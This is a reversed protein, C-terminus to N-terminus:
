GGAETNAPGFLAELGRWVDDRWSTYNHEGPYERYTVSYGRAQLVDRMQQNPPLLPEFMGVDMWVNIPRATASQILDLLVQDYGLKERLGFSGSQCLVRGFVEPARVGTFLAMLGGMSAGLVGYAGPLANIDVLHVQERALPLVKRLLFLVTTENCAYEVIRAQGGHAVLALALPRIRGQAILNDVMTTLHARRLYDQGDFVVLLPAPDTTPPQYFYVTRKGGVILHEDEVDHRTVRGRPVGRKATVLPTPVSNPMRFFQNFGGIGNSSARPNLPDRVRQGDQVYTYEIYADLPLTEAHIWVEPALQKLDIPSGHGWGWNNFDGILQPAHPGRWVFTVFEGDILPAGEREVRELMTEVSITTVTESRSTV